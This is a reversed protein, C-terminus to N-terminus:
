CCAHATRTAHAPPCTPPRAPPCARLRAPPCAPAAWWMLLPYHVSISFLAQAALMGVLHHFPFITIHGADYHVLVTYSAIYLCAILASCARAHHTIFPQAAFHLWERRGLFEEKLGYGDLLSRMRWAPVALLCVYVFGEIVQMNFAPDWSCEGRSTATRVALRAGRPRTHM